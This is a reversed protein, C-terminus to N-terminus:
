VDYKANFIPLESGIGSKLIRSSPDVIGDEGSKNLVQERKGEDGDGVAHDVKVQRPVSEHTVIIWGVEFLNPAGVDHQGGDGEDVAQAPEREVEKINQSVGSNRNEARTRFGCCDPEDRAM